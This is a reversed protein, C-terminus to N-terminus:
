MPYHEPNSDCIVEREALDGPVTACSDRRRDLPLRHGGVKETLFLAPAEAVEGLVQVLSLEGPGEQQILGRPASRHDGAARPVEGRLEPQFGTREGPVAAALGAPVV